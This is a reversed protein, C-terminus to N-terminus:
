GEGGTDIRQRPYRRAMCCASEQEQATMMPDMVSCNQMQAFVKRPEAAQELLARFDYAPQYKHSYADINQQLMQQCLTQCADFPVDNVSYLELADLVLRLM